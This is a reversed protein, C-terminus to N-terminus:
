PFRRTPSGKSSPGDRIRSRSLTAMRSMPPLFIRPSTTSSPPKTVSPATRGIVGDSIDWGITNIFWKKVVSSEEAASSELDYPGCFLIAGKLPSSLSTKAIHTWQSYGPTTNVVVFQAAIQTGASDGGVIIRTPDLDRRSAITSVYDVMEGMQIVPTPYTGDPAYDYNMAVVAYGENAMLTAYTEMNAKDGAIFGGGHAWVIVPLPKASKKTPEYLDFTNRGYRSPYTLDHVVTVGAKVRTFGAPKTLEQQRFANRLLLISPTPSISFWIAALIVSTTISLAVALWFRRIRAHVSPRHPQQQDPVHNSSPMGTMIAADPDM